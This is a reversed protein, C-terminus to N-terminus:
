KRARLKRVLLISILSYGQFNRHSTCTVTHSSLRYPPLCETADISALILRGDGRFGGGAWDVGIPCNSRGRHEWLMKFGVSNGNNTDM